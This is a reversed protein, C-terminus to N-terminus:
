LDHVESAMYTRLGMAGLGPKPLINCQWGRIYRAGLRLPGVGPKSLTGCM